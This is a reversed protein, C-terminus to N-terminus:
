ISCSRDGSLLAERRADNRFRERDRSVGSMWEINEQVWPPLDTSAELVSRATSDVDQPDQPDRNRPFMSHIHQQESSIGIHFASMM